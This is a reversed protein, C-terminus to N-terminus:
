KAIKVKELNLFSEILHKGMEYYDKVSYDVIRNTKQDIYGLLSCEM